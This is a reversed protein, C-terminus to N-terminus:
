VVKKVTKEFLMNVDIQLVEGLRKYIPHNKNLLKKNTWEVFDDQDGLYANWFWQNPEYVEGVLAEIIEKQPRDSLRALVLAQQKYINVLQLSDGSLYLETDMAKLAEKTKQDLNFTQAFVQARLLLMIVACALIFKIISLLLGFHRRRSHFIKSCILNAM